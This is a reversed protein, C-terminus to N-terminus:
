SQLHIMGSLYSFQLTAGRLRSVLSRFIFVNWDYNNPVLNM